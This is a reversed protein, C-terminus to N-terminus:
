SLSKEYLLSFFTKYFSILIQALNSVPCDTRQADLNDQFLRNGTQSFGTKIHLGSFFFQGDVQKRYVPQWRFKDSKFYNAIFMELYKEEL